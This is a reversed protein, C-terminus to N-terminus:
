ALTWIQAAQEASPISVDQNSTLFYRPLLRLLAQYDSSQMSKFLERAQERRSKPTGDKFPVFQAIIQNINYSGKHDCDKTTFVNCPPNSILCSSSLFNSLPRLRVTMQPISTIIDGYSCGHQKEPEIDPM